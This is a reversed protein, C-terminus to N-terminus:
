RAKKRSPKLYEKVSSEALGFERGVRMRAVKPPLGPNARRLEDYASRVEERRATPDHNGWRSAAAKKGGASTGEGARILRDLGISMAEPMMLLTALAAADANKEAIALQAKWCHLMVVVARQTRESSLEKVTTASGFCKDDEIVRFAALGYVGVLNKGNKSGDMMARRIACVMGKVADMPIEGLARGQEEQTSRQLEYFSRFLDDM